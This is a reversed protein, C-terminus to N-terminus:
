TQSPTKLSQITQESSAFSLSTKLCLLSVVEDEPAVIVLSSLLVFLYPSSVLHVNVLLTLDFFEELPDVLVQRFVWM